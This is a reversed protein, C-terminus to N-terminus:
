MTMMLMPVIMGVSCIGMLMLMIAVWRVAAAGQV